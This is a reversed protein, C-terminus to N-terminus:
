SFKSLGKMRLDAEVEMTLPEGAKYALVDGAKRGGAVGSKEAACTESCAVTM